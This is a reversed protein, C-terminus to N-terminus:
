RAVEEPSRTSVRCHSLPRFEGLLRTLTGTTRGAVAEVHQEDVDWTTSGEPCYFAYRPAPRLELLLLSRGRLEAEPVSPRFTVVARSYTRRSPLKLLGHGIPLLLLEASVLLYLPLALGLSLWAEGRGAFQAKRRLRRRWAELAVVVATASGVNVVVARYASEGLTDLRAAMLGQSYAVDALPLLGAFAPLLMFFLVVYAVAQATWLLGPRALLHRLREAARETPLWRRAAPRLLFFALLVLAAPVTLVLAVTLLTVFFQAGATLAGGPTLTLKIGLLRAYSAEALLGSGALLVAGGAASAGVARLRRGLWATPDTLPFPGPPVPRPRRLLTAVLEDLAAESVEGSDSVDVYQTNQLQRPIECPRYLVPVVPKGRNLAARLEGRVEDSRVADPSLVILVSACGGLAADITRDWDDGTRIDWLDLWVRIERDRLRSTLDLVFDVDRRSYCVFTHGGDHPPVATALAQPSTVGNM